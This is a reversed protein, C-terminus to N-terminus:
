TWTGCRQLDAGAAPCLSWGHLLADWRRRGGPRQDAAVGLQLRDGRRAGVGPHAADDHDGVGPDALRAERALRERLRLGGARRDGPHLRRPAGGGDREAGERVQDRVVHARVVRELQHAAAGLRQALAGAPAPEHEPEVVGLPEVRDRGREDEMERDAAAREHEGGDPGALRARVRDRRQPLVRAGAPELQPREAVVRDARQDLRREAARDLLVRQAPHPLRAAAVREVDALEDDARQLAARERAGSLEPSERAARRHAARQGLQHRAPHGPQARALARGDLQERDRLRQPDVLEARERLEIREDLGLGVPEDDDVAVLGPERMREVAVRHARLQRDQARPLQPHAGGPRQLLASGSM